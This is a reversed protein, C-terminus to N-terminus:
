PSKLAASAKATSLPLSYLRLDDLYADLPRVLFSAAVALLGYATSDAFWAVFMVPLLYFVGMLLQPGALYNLAAIAAIAGLGIVFLASRPLLELRKM